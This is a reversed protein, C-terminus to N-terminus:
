ALEPPTPHNTIKAERYDGRWTITEDLLSPFQAYVDKGDFDPFDDPLHFYDLYTRRGALRIKYGPSRTGAKDVWLIVDTNRDEDQCPWEGRLWITRKGQHTAIGGRLIPKRGFHEDPEANSVIGQNKLWLKFEIPKYVTDFLWNLNAARQFGKQYLEVSARAKSGKNNNAGLDTRNQTEMWGRVYSSNLYMRIANGEVWNPYLPRENLMNFEAQSLGNYGPALETNGTDSETDLRFQASFQINEYGAGRVNSAALHVSGARLFYNAYDSAEYGYRKIMAMFNDDKYVVSAQGCITAARKDTRWVPNGSVVKMSGDPNKEFMSQGDHTHQMYRGVGVFAKGALVLAGLDSPAGLPNSQSTGRYPEMVQGFSMYRPYGTDGDTDDRFHPAVFSLNGWDTMGSKLDPGDPDAESEAIIHKTIWGVHRYWQMYPDSGARAQWVEHNVSFYEVGGGKWDSQKFLQYWKKAYLIAAAETQLFIHTGEFAPNTTSWELLEQRLNAPCDPEDAAQKAAAYNALELARKLTTPYPEGPTWKASESTHTWGRGMLDDDQEDTYLGGPYILIKSPHITFTPIRKFLATNLAPQATFAFNNGLLRPKAQSVATLRPAPTSVFANGAFDAGVRAFAYSTDFGDGTIVEEGPYDTNDGIVLIDGDGPYGSNDAIVIIDGDDCIRVVWHKGAAANPAATICQARLVLAAETTLNAFLAEAQACTYTNENYVLYVTESIDVAILGSVLKYTRFRTRLYAM